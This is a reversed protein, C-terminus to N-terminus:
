DNPKIDVSTAMSQWINYIKDGQTKSHCLLQIRKKATNALKSLNEINSSIIQLKNAIEEADFVPFLFGTKGTEVFTKDTGFSIVPRGSGLAEIIDRGWPNNERTPKILLHSDKLIKEPNTVHGKFCFYDSVGESSAYDELTGGTKAIQGLKGPLSKSLQTHGAIVFIINKIKKSKLIKAISILQDTGRAWSYNSLCAIQLPSTPLKELPHDFLSQSINYVVHGKKHNAALKDWHKKENQTIYICEDCYQIIRSAQSRSFFNIPPQTRIHMSVKCHCNIKIWKALHHLSEHNLHIIDYEVSKEKLQSYFSQAKVQGKLWILYQFVNRSLLDISTIKPMHPMIKCSLNLEEYKAQIPGKKKCWIDIKVKHYNSISEITKFLSRSSGGYGGEIDLCLIRLM